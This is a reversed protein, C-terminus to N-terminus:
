KDEKKVEEIKVKVVKCDKLNYEKIEERCHKATPTLTNLGDIIRPTFIHEGICGDFGAYYQGQKNKIVYAIM